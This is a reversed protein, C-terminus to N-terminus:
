TALSEETTLTLWSEPRRRLPKQSLSLSSSPEPQLPEQSLALSSQAGPGLSSSPPRQLTEHTVALSSRRLLLPKSEVGERFELSQVMGPTDWEPGEAEEVSVPVGQSDFTCWRDQDRGRGKKMSRGVDAKTREPM